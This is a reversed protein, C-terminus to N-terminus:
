VPNYLVKGQTQSVMSLLMLLVVYNASKPCTSLHIICINVPKKVPSPVLRIRKSFGAEEDTM